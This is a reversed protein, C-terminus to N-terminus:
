ETEAESKCSGTGCGCCSKKKCTSLGVIKYAPCFGCFGTLVMIGGVVAVVIGLIAGAMADLVVFAVILAIIGVVVRTARDAGGENAQM